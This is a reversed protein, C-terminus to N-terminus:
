NGASLRGTDTKKVEMGMKEEFKLFEHGNWGLITQNIVSFHRWNKLPILKQYGGYHDFVFAGQHPDFLYVFGGQDTLVVPKLCLNETFPRIDNTQNILTGDGSIKNLKGTLADYVWINNDYALGVCTVQYFGLQRLDLSNINNLFRDLM